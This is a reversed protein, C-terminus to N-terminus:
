GDSQAFAQGIGCAFFNQTDCIVTRRESTLHSKPSLTRNCGGSRGWKRATWARSGKKEPLNVFPSKEIEKNKIAEFVRQGTPPVFGNKVAHCNKVRLGHIAHTQNRSSPARGRPAEGSDIVCPFGM